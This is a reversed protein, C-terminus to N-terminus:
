TIEQLNYWKKDAKKHHDSADIVFLRNEGNNKRTYKGVYYQRNNYIVFRYEIM